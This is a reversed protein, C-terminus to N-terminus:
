YSYYNDKAPICLVSRIFILQTLIAPIIYFYFAYQLETQNSRLLTASFLDLLGWFTFSFILGVCFLFVPNKLFPIRSQPMNRNLIEIAMLTISFYSCISFWSPNGPGTYSFYRELLWCTIVLIYSTKFLFPRKNFVHWERAQWLIVLVAILTQLDQIHINLLKQGPLVANVAELIFNFLFFLLMPRFTKASRQWAPWLLTVTIFQLLLFVGFLILTITM